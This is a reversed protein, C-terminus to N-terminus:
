VGGLYLVQGTIYASEPKIFFEVANAVDEMTGLRKIALRDIIAQIKSRPVNRILETKVPTPGVANVTIGLEALERSLVRTLAEVASKAAVYVAEGELDLPVAVTTLNVVRGYSRQRMLKASERTVLFTGEVNVSMIKQLTTVPTLLFHNMSAIGANNITVDLRNYNKRIHALIDIVDPESSVDALVHEYGPISWDSPTRSCGIVHYGKHVLYEALFRGIGMRAGTVLAVRSEDTM